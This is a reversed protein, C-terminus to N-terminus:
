QELARLYCTGDDRKVFIATYVSSCEQAEGEGRVVCFQLRYTHYTEELTLPRIETEDNWVCYSFTYYGSRDLHDYMEGDAHDVSQVGFYRSLQTELAEESILVSYTANPYDSAVAEIAEPNGVYAAYGECLMTNLIEDRYLEAIKSPKSFPTLETSNVTLMDLTECLEKCLASEPDLTHEVTEARYDKLDLGLIGKVWLANSGAVCSVLFLASFLLLLIMSGARMPRRRRKYRYRYM